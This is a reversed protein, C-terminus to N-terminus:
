VNSTLSIFVDSCIRIHSSKYKCIGLGPQCTCGHREVGSPQAEYETHVVVVFGM